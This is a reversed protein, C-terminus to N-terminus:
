GIPAAPNQQVAARRTLTRAITLLVVCSIAAIMLLRLNNPTRPGAYPMDTETLVAISHNDPDYRVAISSGRPHGAVWRHMSAIDSGSSSSRSRIRTAIEGGDALYAIRCEIHWVISRGGSRFPRYPDVTCRQITASAEPWSQQAHERWADAISAVLAFITCAGAILGLLGLIGATKNPATTSATTATLTM